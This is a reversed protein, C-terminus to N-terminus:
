GSITDTGDKQQIERSSELYDPFSPHRVKGPDESVSPGSGEGEM